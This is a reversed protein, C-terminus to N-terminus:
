GFIQFALEHTCGHDLADRIRHWDANPALMRAVGPDFGLEVLRDYRHGTVDESDRFDDGARRREVEERWDPDPGDNSVPDLPEGCYRCHKLKFPFSILCNPCRACAM